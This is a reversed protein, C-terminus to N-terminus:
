NDKTGISEVLCDYIMETIMNQDQWHRQNQRSIDYQQEHYQRLGHLVGHIARLIWIAVGADKNECCQDLAKVLLEVFQDFVLSPEGKTEFCMHEIIQVICVANQEHRKLLTVLLTVLSTVLKNTIVYERLEVVGRSWDHLRQEVLLQRLNSVHTFVLNTFEENSGIEVDDYEIIMPKYTPSTWSLESAQSPPFVYGRKMFYTALAFRMVSSTMEM